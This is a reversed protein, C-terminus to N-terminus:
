RRFCYDRFEHPDGECGDEAAHALNAMERATVYHFNLGACQALSEHFRHMPEGLLMEFNREIGGHTHWKVFVWEPKGKVSVGLETALSLRSLTPPNAGTIDGNEIRPVIGWKRKQWNLGLPGPIMLLEDKRERRRKSASVEAHEAKDLAHRGRLDRAYVVQNIVRSQTPSPASPMTFDAYCGTQRLIPIEHDVGCGEGKPHSNNLAWNGHIFGYRVSGEADRSLLGHRLLDEKGRELSAEVGEPSDNKHHLHIEVESGTKDCLEALPGILDSDYQEIPYFFTHKPPKGDSDRYKEVLEPFRSRWTKLRTLAGEKHSAHLPEFHDCVAIFVHVPKHPRSRQRCLYPLLWKDFARLM